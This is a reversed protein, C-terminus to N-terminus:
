GSKRAMRAADGFTKGVGTKGGIEVIYCHPLESVAGPAFFRGGHVTMAGLIKTSERIVSLCSGDPVEVWMFDMELGCYETKGDMSDLCVSGKNNFSVGNLCTIDHMLVDGTNSFAVDGRVDKVGDMYVDGENSFIVGYGVDEVEDLDVHGKNKFRVMDGINVALRAAVDGKNKFWVGDGISKLENGIFHGDNAIIISDPMSEADDLNVTGEHTVTLRDGACHEYGYGKTDLLRKFEADNMVVVM